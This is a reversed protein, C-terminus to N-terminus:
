IWAAGVELSVEAEGSWGQRGVLGGYIIMLGSCELNV